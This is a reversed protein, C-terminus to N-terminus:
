AAPTGDAHPALAGAIFEHVPTPVSLERGLRAVAGSLWPLELRRGGALDHLMSSGMEPPLGDARVMIRAVIDDPLRVGKARAVAVVEAVGAEYLRRTAPNARIPGIPLRTLATLGSHPALFAFKDWINRRIDDSVTAEIGAGRCAAHLAEIRRSAAGDWEGFVLRALTGTHAIVGPEAITALIYAAGGFCHDRGFAAALADEAGVGNQFSVVATGSGVLPHATTLATRTDPLKVTILVLDVTGAAATEAADVAQVPALHLNGGASRVSLGHRHLAELHAGRAVFLVEHGTAALRAGFYGGVGGVGVVAIRM